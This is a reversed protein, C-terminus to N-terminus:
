VAKRLKERELFTDLIQVIQKRQTTPLKEVQSFRRWLRNDRTRSIEKTKVLGLLQDVTLGLAKAFLHLLHGPPHESHKEYYAIMRQSIGTEAALGRQSLGAGKRLLALRSGFSESTGDLLMKRKSMLFEKEIGDHGANYPQIERKM